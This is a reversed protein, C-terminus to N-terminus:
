SLGAWSLYLNWARAGWFVALLSCAGLFVGFPIEGSQLM